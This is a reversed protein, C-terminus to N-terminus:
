IVGATVVTLALLEVPVVVVAPVLETFVALAEIEMALVILIGV